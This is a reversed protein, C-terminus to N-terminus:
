VTRKYVSMGGLSAVEGLWLIYDQETHFSVQFHGQLWKTRGPRCYAGYCLPMVMDPFRCNTEEEVEPDAVRCVSQPQYCMWCAVHKKIWERGAKKRTQYAKSKTRIWHMRRSCAGAAHDFPRGEVRCYLCCGSMIELDREYRSIVEDRIRDQRLVEGPGTFFSPDEAASAAGPGPQPLRFELDDPRPAAHPVRCVECPEDEGEM